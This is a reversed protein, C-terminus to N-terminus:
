SGCSGGPTQAGVLGDRHQGRDPVEGDGEEGARGSPVPGVRITSIFGITALQDTPAISGSVRAARDLLGAVAKTTKTDQSLARQAMSWKRMNVYTSLRPLGLGGHTTSLVPPSDPVHAHETTCCSANFIIISSAEFNYVSIM